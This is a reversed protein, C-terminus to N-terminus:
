TSACVTLVAYLQRVMQTKFKNYTRKVEPGRQNGSQLCLPLNEVFECTLTIRLIFLHFINYLDNKLSGSMVGIGPPTDPNEVIPLRFKPKFLPLSMCKFGYRLFALSM